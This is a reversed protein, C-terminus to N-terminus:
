PIVVYHKYIYFIVIFIGIMIAFNKPNKFGKYVIKKMKKMYGNFLSITNHPYAWIGFMFLVVGFVYTLALANLFDISTKNVIFMALGVNLFDDPSPIVPPTSMLLGGIIFIMALIKAQSRKLGLFSKGETNWFTIDFAHRLDMKNAENSHNGSIAM